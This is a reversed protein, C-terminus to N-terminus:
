KADLYQCVRDFVMCVCPLVIVHLRSKNRCPRLARLLVSRQKHLQARASFVVSRPGPDPRVDVYSHSNGCGCLATEGGWTAPGRFSPPLRDRLIEHADAESVRLGVTVGFATSCM